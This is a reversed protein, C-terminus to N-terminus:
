GGGSGGFTFYCGVVGWKPYDVGVVIREVAGSTVDERGEAGGGRSGLPDDPAGGGLGLYQIPLAPRRQEVEDLAIGVDCVRGLGLSVRRAHGSHGKVGERLVRAPRGSQVSRYSPPVHAPPGLGFELLHHARFDDPLALVLLSSPRLDNAIQAHMRVPPLHAHPRRATRHLNPIAEVAPAPAPRQPRHVGRVTAAPSPVPRHGEHRKAPIALPNRTTRLPIIGHPNPIRTSHFLSRSRETPFKATSLLFPFM